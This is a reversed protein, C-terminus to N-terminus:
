PALNVYIPDHSTLLELFSEPGQFGRLNRLLFPLPGAPAEPVYALCETTAREPVPRLGTAGARESGKQVVGGTGERNGCGPHSPWRPSSPWVPDWRPRRRPQGKTAPAEARALTRPASGTQETRPQAEVAEAGPAPSALRRHFLLARSGLAAFVGHKDPLRLSHGAQPSSSGPSRAECTHPGM